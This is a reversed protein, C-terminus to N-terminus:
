RARRWVGSGRALTADAVYHIVNGGARLAWSGLRLGVDASGAGEDASGAGM